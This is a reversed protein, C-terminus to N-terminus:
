WKWEDLHRWPRNVIFLGINLFFFFPLDEIVKATFHDWSLAKNVLLNGWVGLCYASFFLLLRKLTLKALKGIWKNDDM